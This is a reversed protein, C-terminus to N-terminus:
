IPLLDDPFASARDFEESEAPTDRLRNRWCWARNLHAYVHGLEIRLEIEGCDHETELDRILTNLHDRADELEQM